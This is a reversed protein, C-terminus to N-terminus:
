KWMKNTKDDRRMVSERERKKKEEETQKSRLFLEVFVAIKVFVHFFAIMAEFRYGIVSFVDSERGSTTLHCKTIAGM